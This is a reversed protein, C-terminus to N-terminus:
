SAFGTHWGRTLDNDFLKDPSWAHGFRDTWFSTTYIDFLFGNQQASWKKDTFRMGATLDFNCTNDNSFFAATQIEDPTPGNQVNEAQCHAVQCYEWRKNPDTTYCWVGGSFICSDHAFTFRKGVYVRKGYVISVCFSFLGSEGDPNRCYNEPLTGFNHNHPIKDAWRQCTRGSKTTSVKGQYNKGWWGDNKQCELLYM